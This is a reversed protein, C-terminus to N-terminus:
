DVSESEDLFILAVGEQSEDLDIRVDLNDSLMAPRPESSKGDYVMVLAGASIMMSAKKINEPM